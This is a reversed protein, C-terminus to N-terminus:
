SRLFTATPGGGTRVGDPPRVRFHLLLEFHDILAHVFETSRENALEDGAAVWREYSGLSPPPIVRRPQFFRENPEKANMGDTLYFFDLVRDQPQPLLSLILAEDPFAQALQLLDEAPVHARLEILADLVAAMADDAEKVEPLEYRVYDTNVNFAPDFAHVHVYNLLMPAASQVKDRLVYHAAWAAERPEGSRLWEALHRKAEAGTVNDGFAFATANAQAAIPHPKWDPDDKAAYIKWMLDVREGRLTSNGLSFAFYSAGQDLAQRRSDKLNGLFQHFSEQAMEDFRAMLAQLDNRTCREENQALAREYEKRVQPDGIDEPNMGPYGGAPAITLSCQNAPALPDYKPIKLADLARFVKFWAAYTEKIQREQIDWQGSLPASASDHGNVELLTLLVSHFDEYRRSREFYGLGATAGELRQEVTIGQSATQAVAPTATSVVCLALARVCLRLYVTQGRKALPQMNCLAKAEESATQTTRTEEAQGVLRNHRGRRQSM